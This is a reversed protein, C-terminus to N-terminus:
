LTKSLEAKINEENSAFDFPPKSSVEWMISSISPDKSREINKKVQDYYFKNSLWGLHVRFIACGLVLYSCFIWPPGSEGFQSLFLFIALMMCVFFSVADCFLFVMCNMFMKRYGFWLFGGFFAAWNWTNKGSDELKKFAALYYEETTEETLENQKDETM